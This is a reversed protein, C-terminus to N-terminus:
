KVTEDHSAATACGYPDAIDLTALIDIELQEMVEAEGDDEHDFGLLHLLGHVLLHSVHDEFPKAEEAAERTTTERAIVIDGLMPGIPEGPDYVPFSLVNTPKDIGRHTQNLVRIRADDTLVLSLEAEDPIDLAGSAAVASVVREILPRLVEEAGWAVDEILIDVAIARSSSRSEETM